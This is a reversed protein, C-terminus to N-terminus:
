LRGLCCWSPKTAKKGAKRERERKKRKRVSARAKQEGSEKEGTVRVERGEEWRRGKRWGGKNWKGAMEVESGLASVPFCPHQGRSGKLLTSGQSTLLMAQGDQLSWPDPLVALPVM